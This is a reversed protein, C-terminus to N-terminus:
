SNSITTSTTVVVVHQAALVAGLALRWRLGGANWRYLTVKMQHTPPPHLMTTEPAGHFVAADRSRFWQMRLVEAKDKKEM